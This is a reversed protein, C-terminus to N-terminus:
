TSVGPVDMEGTVAATILAQRHEELLLIQGQILDLTRDIKSCARDLEAVLREQQSLERRPVIIDGADVANFHSLLAGSSKQRVQEQARDSNVVYELYRPILTSSKRVLVLDVCNCGGLDPPVLAASGAFGSRVIVLDDFRLITNSHTRSTTEDIYLLNQRDIRAPKINLGRLCPVGTNTFVFAGHDRNGSTSRGALYRLRVANYTTDLWLLQSIQASRKKVLLAAM